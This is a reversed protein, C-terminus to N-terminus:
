FPKSLEFNTNKISKLSNDMSSCDDALKMYEKLLCEAKSKMASLNVKIIRPLRERMLEVTSFVYLSCNILENLKPNVINFYHIFESDIHGDIRIEVGCDFRGYLKGNEKDFIAEFCKVKGDGVFAFIYKNGIIYNHKRM